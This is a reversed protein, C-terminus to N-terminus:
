CSGTPKDSEVQPEGPKRSRRARYLLLGVSAMWVAVAACARWNIPGPGHVQLNAIEKESFGGISLWDKLTKPFSLSVPLYTCQGFASIVYCGSAAECLSPSHRTSLKVGSSTAGDARLGDLCFDRPETWYVGSDAVEILMATTFARDGLDKADRPKGPQWFANKGVIAVVNTTVGDQASAEDCHCEYPHPRQALLKKNNPGDWPEKFNYQQYLRDESLFPLILVRWSHIPRGNKDSVHVPPFCGYAAAYNHLALHLQRLHRECSEGRNVERFGRVVPVLLVVLTAFLLLPVMLCGFGRTKGNLVAAMGLVIVFVAIGAGGFVMLSSWLVVFLLFLTQLRFQM